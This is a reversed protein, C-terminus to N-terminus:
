KGRLLALDQCESKRIGADEEEFQLNRGNRMGGRTWLARQEACDGIYM